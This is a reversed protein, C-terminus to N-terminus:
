NASTQTASKGRMTKRWRAPESWGFLGTGDRVPFRAIADLVVPRTRGLRLQPTGSVRGAFGGIRAFSTRRLLICEGASAIGAWSRTQRRVAQALADSMGGKDTASRFRGVLDGDSAALAALEREFGADLRADPPLILLWPSRAAAAAANLRAAADGPAVLIDAGFADAIARTADSSGGDAIVVERVLGDVAAPVLCELADALTAGNNLTSVVVTIMVPM